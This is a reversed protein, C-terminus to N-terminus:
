KKKWRAAMLRQRAALAEKITMEAPVATPPAQKQTSALHPLNRINNPLNPRRADALQKKGNIRQRTRSQQKQALQNKNAAPSTYDSILDLRQTEGGLALEIGDHGISAVKWSGWKDNLRLYHSSENDKFVVMMAEGTDVIGVMRGEPLKKDALTVPEEKKVIEKVPEPPIFKKRSEWFLPSDLMATYQRLPPAALAEASPIEIKTYGEGIHNEESILKINFITLSTLALLGLSILTFLLNIPPSILQKM